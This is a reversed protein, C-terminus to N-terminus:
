YKRPEGPTPQPAVRYEVSGAEGFGPVGGAPQTAPSVNFRHFDGFFKGAKPQVKLMREYRARVDDPVAKLKSEDNVEYSSLWKGEKNAVILKRGPGDHQLILTGQDDTWRMEGHENLDAMQQQMTSVRVDGGVTMGSGGGQPQFTVINYGGGARLPVPPSGWPNEADL